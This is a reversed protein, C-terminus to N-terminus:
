DNNKKTCKTTKRAKRKRGATSNSKKLRSEDRNEKKALDTFASAIIGKIGYHTLCNQRNEVERSALQRSSVGTKGDTQHGRKGDCPKAM